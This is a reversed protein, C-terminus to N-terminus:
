QVNKWTRGCAIKSIAARKVGFKKAIIRHTTGAALMTRITRVNKETLKAKGNKEGSSDPTVGRGKSWCDRSNDTNTGLFLHSPNVCSPNDCHHCVFLDEGIEGVYLQYAVRHAYQMRGAVGFYGYGAPLKCATWEWCGDMKIFKKEFREKLKKM